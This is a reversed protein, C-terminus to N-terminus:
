CRDESLEAHKCVLQCVDDGDRRKQQHRRGSLILGGILRLWCGGSTVLARESTIAGIAVRGGAELQIDDRPHILEVLVVVVTHYRTHRHHAFIAGGAGVGGVHHSLQGTVEGIIWVSTEVSEEHLFHGVVEVCM